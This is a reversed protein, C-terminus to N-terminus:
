GHIDKLHQLAELYDEYTNLNSFELSAGVAVGLGGLKAM